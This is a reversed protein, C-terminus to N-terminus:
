QVPRGHRLVLDVPKVYANEGGRGPHDHCFLVKTAESGRVRSFKSARSPRAADFDHWAVSLLGAAIM